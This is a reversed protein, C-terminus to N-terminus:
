KEEKELVNCIHRLMENMQTLAETMKAREESHRTESENHIWFMYGCAVIPFGVSGVATLLTNVDM